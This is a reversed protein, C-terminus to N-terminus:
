KAEVFKADKPEYKLLLPTEEAVAMDSVFHLTSAVTMASEDRKRTFIQVEFRPERDERPLSLDTVISIRHMGKPHEIACGLRGEGESILLVPVSNFMASVGMFGSTGEAEAGIQIACEGAWSIIKPAGMKQGDARVVKEERIFVGRFTYLGSPLSVRRMEKRKQRGGYGGAGKRSGVAGLAPAKGPAM